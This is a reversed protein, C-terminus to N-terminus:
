AKEQTEFVIPRNCLKLHDAYANQIRTLAEGEVTNFNLLCEVLQARTMPIQQTRVFQEALVRRTDISTQFKEKGSMGGVGEAEKEGRGLEAV